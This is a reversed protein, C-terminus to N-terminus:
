FPVPKMLAAPLTSVSELCRALQKLRFPTSSGNGSLIASPPLFNTPSGVLGEYDVYGYDNISPNAFLNVVFPFTSFDPPKSVSSIRVYNYTLLGAKPYAGDSGNFSHITRLPYTQALVPALSGSNGLLGMGGAPAAVVLGGCTKLVQCRSLINSM